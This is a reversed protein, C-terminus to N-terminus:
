GGRPVRERWKKELRKASVPHRTKIEPAFVSIKFEELMWRFEELFRLAEPDTEDSLEQKLKECRERHPSLSEEKARDKEPSAYAREGRIRLAELYRPLERLRERSYSELFDGPVLAELESLLHGMRKVVAPNSAGTKRFHELSARTKERERVVSLVEELIERGKLGLKGRLQEVKAQFRERDPPQPQHLDFLELLIYRRLRQNAEQVSGMFFTMPATDKPFAWDKEFQKLPHAFVIRYLLLLGERTVTRAEHPDEYLRLAARGDEPVLAPYAYRTVGFSDTGLDIKEPLEPLNWPDIEETEWTKRAKKWVRDSQREPAIDQLDELRRGAGLVKGQSDVVEFRMKLHDRLAERNWQDLPVQINKMEQILSSLKAYLSGQRFPLRGV